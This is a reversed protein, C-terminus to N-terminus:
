FYYRYDSLSSKANRCMSKSNHILVQRLPVDRLYNGYFLTKHFDIDDKAFSTSDKFVM